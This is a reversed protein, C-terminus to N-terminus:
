AGQLLTRAEQRLLRVTLRVDWPVGQVQRELAEHLAEARRLAQLAEDHRGLRECTLAWWYWDLPDAERLVALAQKLATEAEAWQGARYLVAGRITPTMSGHELYPALKELLARCPGLDSVADPRASCVWALSLALRPEATGGHKGVLEACAARYGEEDGQALRVLALPPLAEAAGKGAAKALADAAAPWQGLEALALGHQLHLASGDLGLALARGLDHAAVAHHQRLAVLLSGRLHWARAEGPAEKLLEGLENVAAQYNQLEARVRARALRATTDKPELELARDFAKLAEPWDQLQARALGAARYVVAEAPQGELAPALVACDDLLDLWPSREVPRLKAHRNAWTRDPPLLTAETASEAQRYAADAAAGDGAYAHALSLYLWRRGDAPLLAAARVWDPRALDWRGLAAQAFGRGELALSDDGDLALAETYAVIAEQPRHALLMVRGRERLLAADKPASKLCADLHFLAAGWQRQACSDAALTRHWAPMPVVVPSAPHGKLQRWAALLERPPLPAVAGAAGDIRHGSLLQALPLLESPPRTDPAPLDWLRVVAEPGATLLRRGDASFELCTVPGALRCFPGLPLGTDIHWLWATGDQLGAALFRGDPSIRACVVAASGRLVPTRPTGAPVEWVRASGDSGVTVALQGDRSFCATLVAGAHQWPEGVAAGDAADWLRAARDDSTTLLFRGDPSFCASTVQQNHELRRWVQGGAVDGVQVSANYRSVTLVRNGDPSGATQNIWYNHQFQAVDRGARWDYVNVRDAYAILVFRGDPSFTAHHVGSHNGLHRGIPPTLPLGTRADWLRCTLDGSTTVVTAGDPTFSAHLVRGAHALPPCCPLGTVDDWLRATQDDGATVVVRGDPSFAAFTANATHGRLALAPLGANLDWVRVTRDAALTVLHRGDQRFAVNTVRGGHRLPPTLPRGTAVDWVRVGADECATALWRGDPSFRALTVPAPHALAALRTGGDVDWVQVTGDNGATALQRGDPSFEVHRIAGGHTPRSGVVTGSALNHVVAGWQDWGTCIRRGDPSFAVFKSSPTQTLAPGVQEGSALDWVTTVYDPGTLALYKGDPSLVPQLLGHSVDKLDRVAGSALHWWRIVDWDTRTVLYAGDPSFGAFKTQGNLGELPVHEGTAVTYLRAGGHYSCLLVRQGDPTFQGFSVLNGFAIPQGTLEKGTATDWVRCVGGKLSCTLLRSADGSLSVADGDDHVAFQVLRPAQQWLLALRERHGRAREDRDAAPLFDLALDRRFAEVFWVSAGLLDGDELRRTGGALHLHVLQLQEAAHQRTLELYNKDAKSRQREAEAVAAMAAQRQRQAEAAKQEALASREEALQSKADALLWLGTVAALAGACLLVLAASLSAVVPKRRCWRWLREAPGVPRAQIPTGGLFRDLDDALAAASAYRRAPDKHLCKVCITELDRPVRVGCRGPPIPEAELVQRVTEVDTDAKFPPRGTLMEYLIAGLGYVDTHPGVGGKGRAQEPAMYGPTGLVVGTRTQSGGGDLRKALGFDAIKPHLTSPPSHNTTPPSRGVLPEGGEVRWGGGEVLLVNAPKLDRHVIGRQHAYDVARALIALFRAAAEAPQPAGGLHRDLGGGEVYEMSFYPCEGQLGIDHVQVINPHRLRAAAEAEDLFRHLDEACARTGALIMKLAVLRNLGIQRAKYVVGMGGRGLEGHIEYGPIDPWWHRDDAPGGQPVRLRLTRADAM